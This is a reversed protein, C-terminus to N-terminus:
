VAGVNLIGDSSGSFLRNTESVYALSWVSLQHGHYENLMEGSDLDFSKIYGDYTGAYIVKDNTVLSTIGAGSSSITKTCEMGNNVWNPQFENGETKITKEEFIESQPTDIRIPVNSSIKLELDRITEQQQL